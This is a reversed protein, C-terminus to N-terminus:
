FLTLQKEFHKKLFSKRHYKTLGYKDIADLHEKTLYGANKTWNYQPYEISLEKMYRDRSVKALISAAAISASKGDGKVICEQPYIFDRILRNGDVLVLINDSKNISKTVSECALKMAKLSCALINTQEIEEVEVCVTANVTENLVYDYLYERKKPSLKKSDNLGSLEKKLKATNKDFYVASAFVGGAGPGRGAEDTGIITKEYSEDYGFLNETNLVSDTIM